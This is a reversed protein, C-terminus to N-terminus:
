MPFARKLSVRLRKMTHVALANALPILYNSHSKLILEVMITNSYNFEFQQKAPKTDIRSSPGGFLPLVAKAALIASRESKGNM